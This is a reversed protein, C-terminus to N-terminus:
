RTGAWTPSKSIQSPSLKLVKGKFLALGKGQGEESQEFMLQMGLCVGLLPMGDSIVDELIADKNEGLVRQASSFSGVGPLVLGDAEGKRYKSSIKVKIDPSIRGLADKISFLNGSGYDLVQILAPM